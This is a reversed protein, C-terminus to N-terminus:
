VGAEDGLVEGGDVDLGGLRQKLAGADKFGSGGADSRERRCDILSHSIYESLMCVCM